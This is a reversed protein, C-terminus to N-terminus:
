WRHFASLLAWLLLGSPVRFSSIRLAIEDVQDIASLNQKTEKMAHLYVLRIFDANLRGSTTVM